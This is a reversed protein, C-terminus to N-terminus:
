ASRNVWIPPGRTVAVLRSLSGFASGWANSLLGWSAALLKDMFADYGLGNVIVLEADAVLAADQPSSEFAHPDANPDNLLSTATVRPGGIQTL